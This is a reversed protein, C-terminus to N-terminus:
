EKACSLRGLIFRCDQLFCNIFPMQMHLIQRPLHHHHPPRSCSLSILTAMYCRGAWAMFPTGYTLLHAEEAWVGLLGRLKAKMLRSDYIQQSNWQGQMLSWRIPETILCTRMWVMPNILGVEEDSNPQLQNVESRLIWGRTSLKFCRRTGSPKKLRISIHKRGRFGLCDNQCRLLTSFIIHTLTHRYTHKQMQIHAWAKTDMIGTDKVTKTPHQDTLWGM